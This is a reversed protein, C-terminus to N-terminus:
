LLRFFLSPFLLNEEGTKKTQVPKKKYLSSIINAKFSISSWM